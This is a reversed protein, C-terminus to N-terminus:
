VCLGRCVENAISVFRPIYKQQCVHSIRAISGFIHECQFPLTSQIMLKHMTHRHICTRSLRFIGNSLVIRSFWCALVSSVKALAAICESIIGPNPILFKDFRHSWLKDLISYIEAVLCEFVLGFHPLSVKRRM